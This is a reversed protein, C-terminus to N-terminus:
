QSPRESTSAASLVQLYSVVARATLQRGRENMHLGDRLLSKVPLGTVALYDQWVQLLDLYGTKAEMAAQRVIDRHRMGASADRGWSVLHPTVLLLETGPSEKRLIRIAEALDTALYDSDNSIALLVVLQPQYPLIRERIQYRYKIWGTGGRGVFVTSVRSGPFAREIQVDLAANDLDSSISDGFLVISLPQGQRLRALAASPVTGVTNVAANTLAPMTKHIGDAWALVTPRDVAEVRVDDVWLPSTGYPYFVLKGASALRKSKFCFVQESWEASAGVGWNCDGETEVGHEDHFHIAAFFQSPARSFLSVRYYQGAQVPFPASEWGGSPSGESPNVELSTQGSHSENTSWLVNRGRSAAGQPNWRQRAASTEFDDSFVCTSTQASVCGIMGVVLSAILWASRDAAKHLPSGQQRRQQGPQVGARHPRHTPVETVRFRTM